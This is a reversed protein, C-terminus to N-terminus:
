SPPRPHARSEDRRDDGRQQADQDERQRGDRRARCRPREPTSPRDTSRVRAWRRPMSMTRTTRATM